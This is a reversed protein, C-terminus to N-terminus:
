AALRRGERQVADDGAPGFAHLQHLDAALASQYARGRDGVAVTARRRIDARTRRQHEIDLHEGDLSAGRGRRWLLCPRESTIAWESPALSFNTIAAARGLNASNRDTSNRHTM